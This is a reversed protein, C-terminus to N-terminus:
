PLWGKLRNVIRYVRDAIALKSTCKEDYYSKYRQYLRDTASILVANRLIALETPKSPSLFRVDEGLCRTFVYQEQIMGTKRSFYGLISTTNRTIKGISYVKGEILVYEATAYKQALEVDWPVEDLAIKSPVVLAFAMCLASVILRM